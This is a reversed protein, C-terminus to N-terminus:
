RTSGAFKYMNKVFEKDIVVKEGLETELYLKFSEYEKGEQELFVEKEKIKFTDFWKLILRVLRDFKLYHYPRITRLYSAMNEYEM